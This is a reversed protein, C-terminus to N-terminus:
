QNLHIFVKVRMQIHSTINVMIMKTNPRNINRTVRFDKVRKAERVLKIKTVLDYREDDDEQQQEQAAASEQQQEERQFCQM